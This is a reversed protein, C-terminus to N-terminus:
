FGFLLWVSRPRLLSANLKGFKRSDRDLLKAAQSSREVKKDPFVFRLKQFKTTLFNFARWVGGVPLIEMACARQSVTRSFISNM